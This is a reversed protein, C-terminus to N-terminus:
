VTDTQLARGDENGYQVFGSILWDHMVVTMVVLLCATYKYDSKMEAAVNIVEIKLREM